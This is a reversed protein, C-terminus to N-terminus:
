SMTTKELGNKKLKRIVVIFFLKRLAANPAQKIDADARAKAELSQQPSNISHQRCINAQQRYPGYASPPIGSLSVLGTWISQGKERGILSSNM